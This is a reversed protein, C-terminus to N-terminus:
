IFDNKNLILNNLWINYNIIDLDNAADDDISKSLLTIKKLLKKDASINNCYTLLNIIEILQKDRKFNADKILDKFLKKIYKIKTIIINIQNLDYRVILEAIHIKLQFSKGISTFDNQLMLRSLNKVSLLLKEQDYYILATNLYIFVSFTPLQQIVDNEKAEKLIELAKNKDSLSYNIVLSNYYYFLYKDKLFSDHENMSKRLIEAYELSKKYKHTKFLCNTLYSLLALKQEHNTKTFLKEETFEKYSHILYEELANFDRQQLLVRSVVQCVKIRFKSSKLIEKNESFKTLTEKLIKNISDDNKSFNQNTKIRYQVIALLLDIEQEWRFRENNIRKKEIYREVNISVLDYSLKLIESYIISLLEFAEIAEAEKEAKNLYHYSLENKGKRKYVRSLLVFHLILIDKEKTMHQLMMSKNLDKYLRSKLQYFNNKKDKYLENSIIKEDYEEGNKNIFDFLLVDKRVNGSNTRGTFLKYFRSEEKNLSNIIEFLINM